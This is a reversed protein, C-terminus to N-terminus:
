LDASIGYRDDMLHWYPTVRGINMRTNEVAWLPTM